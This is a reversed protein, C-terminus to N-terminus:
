EATLTGVAVTIVQVKGNADLIQASASSLNVKGTKAGAKLDLAVSLIAQSGLTAADTSGKQFIAAQLTQGDVQSKLLKTGSGLSLAGGERLFPDSGGPSSWVAKSADADLSLVVGKVQTGQPGQLNLVLHNSTSSGDRVLYFGSPAPASYTLMKAGSGATLDNTKSASGGCAVLTALLGGVAAVSLSHFPTHQKRM